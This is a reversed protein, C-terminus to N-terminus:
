RCGNTPYNALSASTPLPAQSSQRWPATRCQASDGHGVQGTNSLALKRSRLNKGTTWSEKGPGVDSTRVERLPIGLLWLDWVQSRFVDEGPTANLVDSDQHDIRCIIM